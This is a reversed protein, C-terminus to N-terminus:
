KFLLEILLPQPPFLLCLFLASQSRSLITVLTVQNSKAFQLADMELFWIEMMVDRLQFKLAIVVSLQAVLQTKSSTSLATLAQSSRAPRHAAMMVTQIAITVSKLLLVNGM